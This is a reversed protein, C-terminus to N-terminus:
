AWYLANIIDEQTFSFAWSTDSNLLEEPASYLKNIKVGVLKNGAEKSKAVEFNQWNQYGIEKYDKHRSNAHAGVIVLTYSASNIKRTLAAKIVPISDSQIEESTYDSFVFEFDPNADWAKLLYYYQRDNDYDFSVFM